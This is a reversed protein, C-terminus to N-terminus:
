MKAYPLNKLHDFSKVTTKYEKWLKWYRPNFIGFWVKDLQEDLFRAKEAKAEEQKLYEELTM